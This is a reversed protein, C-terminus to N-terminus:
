KKFPLIARVHPELIYVTGWLLIGMYVPFLINGFLSTDARLNAFVAGGLYGTLLVAGLVMTRPICYLILCVLEIIGITLSISVPLGLHILASVVQPPVLIHITADFALFLVLVIMIIRWVWLWAKSIPIMTDMNNYKLM